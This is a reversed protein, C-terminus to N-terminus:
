SHSTQHKAIRKRIRSLSQPSIGLYSAIYHQHVRQFLEKNTKLLDLYREEPSKSVFSEIIRNSSILEDILAIREINKFNPFKKSLEVSLSEPFLMITTNELVQFNESAPTKKIFSENACFFSGETFFYATKENGDVSYFLRVCGEIVLYVNTAINGEKFFIENKSLKRLPFYEMALLAEKENISTYKILSNKLKEIM